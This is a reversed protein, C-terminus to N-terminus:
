SPINDLFDRIDKIGSAEVKYTVQRGSKSSRVLGANRLIGLHVSATNPLTGTLEAIRSSRVGDRHLAVVLFIELRGPQALAAFKKTLDTGSM